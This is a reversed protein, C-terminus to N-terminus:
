KKGYVERLFVSMGAETGILDHAIGHCDGCVPVKEHIEIPHPQEHCMRCKPIMGHRNVHCAICGVQRHKSWNDALMEYVTTHCSGCDESVVADVPYKVELPKHAQHCEVCSKDGMSDSHPLHCNQCPQIQGHFWHCASCAFQTHISPFDRLQELQSVHCSICPQTVDREFNIDLPKHPDAHCDLCGGVEFHAQGTHCNSCKPIIEMDAPPHGQHCDLCLSTHAKGYRDLTVVVEDHCKGCDDAAVTSHLKNNGQYLHDDFVAYAHTLLVGQAILVIMINTNLLRKM